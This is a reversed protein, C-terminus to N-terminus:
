LGIVVGRRSVPSLGHDWGQVVETLALQLRSVRRITAGISEGDSEFPSVAIRREVFLEELEEVEHPTAVAGPLGSRRQFLANGALILGILRAVSESIDSRARAVAPAVQEM